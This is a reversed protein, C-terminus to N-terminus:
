QDDNGKMDYTGNFYEDTQITSGKAQLSPSLTKPMEISDRMNFGHCKKKNLKVNSLMLDDRTGEDFTKIDVMTGKESLTDLM